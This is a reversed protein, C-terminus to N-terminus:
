KQRLIMDFQLSRSLIITVLLSRETEDRQGSTQLIQCLDQVSIDDIVAMARMEGGTLRQVCFQGSPPNIKM